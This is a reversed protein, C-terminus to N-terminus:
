NGDAVEKEMALRAMRRDYWGKANGSAGNTYERSIEVGNIFVFTIKKPTMVAYDLFMEVKGEDYETIPILDAKTLKRISQKEIQKNIDDIQAKVAKWETNYDAIEIMRNVKLANLEREQELLWALQQNLEALTDGEGKLAIFENYCEM